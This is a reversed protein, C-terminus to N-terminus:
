VVVAMGSVAAGGGGKEEGDASRTAVALHGLFRPVVCTNGTFQM